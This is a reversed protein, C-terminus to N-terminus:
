GNAPPLAAEVVEWGAGPRTGETSLVQRWRRAGPQGAFLGLMHRVVQHLRGGQALHTEIAPRMARAVQARPPAPPGGWLTDAQALVGYPDHYAARGIMVGDLGAALLARAQELSEVGGNLSIHMGAFRAKMQHVLDYDLPPITRNDKPSLGSLWAKRAHIIVRRVGAQALHDLFRPLVQAPDDEDVGIRCKVTIEAGQGAMAACCQAVRAPDRMLVAGFSGSQVRDSPCGCNLNVEGYGQAVALATAARLEGPDSGGLQLAVPQERPDFELLHLAGGRVLAPATVMETYLLAQASIQRHFLRCWRDTWDLMPAVSLRAHRHFSDSKPDPM